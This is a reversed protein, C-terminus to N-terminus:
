KAHPNKRHGSKWESFPTTFRGGKRRENRGTSETKKLQAAARATQLAERLAREAKAAKRKAYLADGARNIHLVLHDANTKVGRGARFTVGDGKLIDCELIMGTPIPLGANSMENTKTIVQRMAECYPCTEAGLAAVTALALQHDWGLKREPSVEPKKVAISITSRPETEVVEPTYGVIEGLKM